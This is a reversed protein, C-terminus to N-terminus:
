SGIKKPMKQLEALMQSNLKVLEELLQLQKQSTSVFQRGSDQESINKTGIRKMNKELENMQTDKFKNIFIDNTDDILYDHTHSHHGIFAFKEKEVEKIQSWNMYGVKGVPETSIFLIFPIKNKKLYPWANIYFSEFGDDITILIEKNKKPTLFDKKFRDPDSFTYNSKKIIEMQNKFVDMQINTSPYKSENFRHYMISLIGEDNSYHKINNEDSISNSSIFIVFIFLNIISTALLFIKKIIM